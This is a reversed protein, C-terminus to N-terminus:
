LYFNRGIIQYTQLLANDGIGDIEFKKLLLTGTM